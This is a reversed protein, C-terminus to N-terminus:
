AAYQDEKLGAIKREIQGGVEYAPLEMDMWYKLLKFRKNTESGQNEASAYNNRIFSRLKEESFDATKEFIWVPPHDYISFAEQINVKSYSNEVYGNSKGAIGGTRYGNSKINGTAHDLEATVAGISKQMDGEFEHVGIQRKNIKESYNKDFFKGIAM